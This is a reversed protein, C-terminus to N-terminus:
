YSFCLFRALMRSNLTIEQWTRQRLRKFPTCHLAANSTRYLLAECFIIPINGLHSLGMWMWVAVLALWLALGLCCCQRNLRLSWLTVTMARKVVGGCDLRLLLFLLCAMRRRRPLRWLRNAIWNIVKKGPVTHGFDM